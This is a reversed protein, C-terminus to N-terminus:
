RQRHPKQQSTQASSRDRKQKSGAQRGKPSSAAKSAATKKAAVTKRSKVKGNPPALSKAKGNPPAVPADSRSAHDLQRQLAGIIRGLSEASRLLLSDDRAPAKREALSKPQKAM